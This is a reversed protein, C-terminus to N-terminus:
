AYARRAHSRAVDHHDAWARWVDQAWQRVIDAHAEATKAHLVDKVTLRYLDPAPPALPEFAQKYTKALIGLTKSAHAFTRGEELVLYLATLHINVSQAARRDSQDGPHQVTYADVTLRHSAFYRVDQFERALVENFAAWCAPSGGLYAHTPGDIAAYGAGCDPCHEETM